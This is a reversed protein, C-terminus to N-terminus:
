GIYVRPVRPSVACCLEYHITGAKDAVEEASVMGGFVTAVSGVQVEPVDTIDLMCLDMCIRGIQKVRVGCLEVELKNSLSRHLGDAYGIPLVAVRMDKECTYTRGYGITDGTKHETIAAVRSRLKMVPRLDIGETVTDPFLGYLAVGPRAMDEAYETPTHITAGSNACHVLRFKKGSKAEAAAIAAKFRGYQEATYPDGPVDAMAFHTFVGEFDLGPLNMAEALAAAGAEDARFGTRGMGTELKAHVRLTEGPRLAASYGKALALDGVAQTVNLAALDGACNAPTPGLILIPLTIGGERLAAAEDLCAVALHGCGLKELRRAVPLAGHGYSDAKVVGLCITKEPLRNKLTQYNHEINRLDIEAWTRKMPNAGFTVVSGPLPEYPVAAALARNSYRKDGTLERVLEVWDPLAPHEDESALEIELVARDNWFPYRDIELTYGGYPICWRTKYIVNLKPDARNLLVAYESADIEKEDEAHTMASKPYKVTHTYVTKGGVARRARVRDTLGEEAPILYIQEIWDRSVALSDLLGEDPLRILYKREIELPVANQM